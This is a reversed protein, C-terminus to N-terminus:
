HQIADTNVAEFATGPVSHLQALDDDNWRSDTAGSVYGNAGTDAVILNIAVASVEDFRTLGPLIPLGGQDASTWRLPRLANSTLDFVAGSGATWGSGSRSSHYMEFLQCTGQEVVLVHHDNGGEIPASAPGRTARAATSM